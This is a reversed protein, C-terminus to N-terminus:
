ATGKPTHAGLEDPQALRADTLAVQRALEVYRRELGSLRRFLSVSVLMFTVATVYLLLDAGRGIGVANAIETLADPFIVSLGGALMVLLLLVRWVVKHYARRSGRLALIGALAIAAVLAVKVLILVM